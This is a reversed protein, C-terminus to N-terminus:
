IRGKLTTCAVSTKQSKAPRSQVVSVTKVSVTPDQKEVFQSLYAVITIFDKEYIDPHGNATTVATSMKDCMIVNSLHHVKM